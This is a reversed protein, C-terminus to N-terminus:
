KMLVDELLSFGGLIPRLAGVSVCRIGMMIVNLKKSNMGYSGWNIGNKMGFPAAFTHCGVM